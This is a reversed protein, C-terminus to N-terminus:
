CVRLHCQIMIHYAYQIYSKSGSVQVAACNETHFMVVSLERGEEMYKFDEPAGSLSKFKGEALWRELLQFLPRGWAVFDLDTFSVVGV